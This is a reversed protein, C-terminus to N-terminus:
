LEKSEMWNIIDDLASAENTVRRLLGDNTKIEAQTRQLLTKVASSIDRPKDRTVAQSLFFAHDQLAKIRGSEGYVLDLREIRRRDAKANILWNTTWNQVIQAEITPNFRLAGVSVSSVALGREKLKKFEDSAIFGEVPRGVEDLVPVVAQTMRARMMQMITQLATQKKLEVPLSSASVPETVRSESQTLDVNAAAQEQLSKELSNNIRKLVNAFLGIKTPAPPPPPEPPPAPPEPQPVEPLPDLSAEFLQNLTFKSLYERWLDAAIMAPLQNWPVHHESESISDPNVGEGRAAREVAEKDFGFRSGAESPSAPGADIKFTVSINPIIEIGDRTIASVAERRDQVDAHRKREEESANEKLKAFPADDRHPGITQSQAHLSIVSAIQEWRDIFHVGPGLVQKYATPTRTVVASATDLWLVGPGIKESEGEREVLRGNKVFIAPGHGNTAHLWLRNFIRRRDELTRIPLIFQAYFYVAAQLLLVLAIVDFAIGLINAWLGRQWVSYAYMGLLLFGLILGRFWPKQYFPIEEM